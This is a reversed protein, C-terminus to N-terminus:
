RDARGSVLVVDGSSPALRPHKRKAVDSAGAGSFALPITPLINIGPSPAITATPATPSLKPLETSASGVV